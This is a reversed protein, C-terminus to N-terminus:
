VENSNLFIKDFIVNGCINGEFMGIATCIIAILKRARNDDSTIRNCSLWFFLSLGNSLTDKFIRKAFERQSIKKNLYLSLSLIFQALVIGHLTNIFSYNTGNYQNLSEVSAMMDNVYTSTPCSYNYDMDVRVCEAMDACAHNCNVNGFNTQSKLIVHAIEIYMASPQAFSKGKFKGLKLASAARECKTLIRTHQSKETFNDFFQAIYCQIDINAIKSKM